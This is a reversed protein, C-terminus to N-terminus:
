HLEGNVRGFVECEEYGGWWAGGLACVRLHGRGGGCLMCGCVCVSLVCM